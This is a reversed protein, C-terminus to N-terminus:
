NRSRLFSIFFSHTETGKDPNDNRIQYELAFSDPSKLTETGKDPNDNRISHRFDSSFFYGQTETGKDPNDNRILGKEINYEPTSLKRGRIPTIM